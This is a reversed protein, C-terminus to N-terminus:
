FAKPVFGGAAGHAAAGEGGGLPQPVFATAAATVTDSVTAASSLVDNAATGFAAISGTGGADSLADREPAAAPAAADAAAGAGIAAASRTRVNEWLSVAQAVMSSPDGAAAPLLMTNGAKAIRAFAAVYQEALRVTVADRGGPKRVSEGLLDIAKAAAGARLVLADADGQAALIASQRLGEANNIAAERRGESELIEARKRREAEAQMEM